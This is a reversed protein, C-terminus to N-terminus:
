WGAVACGEKGAGKELRDRGNRRDPKFGLDHWHRAGTDEDHIRREAWEIVPHRMAHM